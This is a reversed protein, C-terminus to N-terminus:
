LSLSSELDTKEESESQNESKTKPLFALIRPINKKARM